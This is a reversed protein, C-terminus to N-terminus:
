DLLPVRLALRFALYAGLLGAYSGSGTWPTSSGSVMPSSRGPGFAAHVHPYGEIRKSLRAVQGGGDVFGERVKEGRPRSASFRCSIRPPTASGPTRGPDTSPSHGSSCRCPTHGPSPAASSRPSGPASAQGVHGLPVRCQPVRPPPLAPTFSPRRGARSPATSPRV